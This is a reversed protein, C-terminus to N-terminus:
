LPWIAILEEPTEAADIDPWVTSPLDRLAQRKKEVASADATKKQGTAKMWEGDLAALAANRAGRLREMHVGRAKQMNVRVRGEADHWCDRFTRDHSLPYKLGTVPHAVLEEDGILRWSAVTREGWSCRGIEEAVAEPTAQRVPAAVPLGDADRSVYRPNLVFQMIGLSGDDFTIAIFQVNPRDREM